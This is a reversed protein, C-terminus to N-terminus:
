EMDWKGQAAYEAFFQALCAMAEKHAIYVFSPICREDNDYVAAITHYNKQFVPFLEELNVYLMVDNEIHFVEKKHYQQMFDHLYLFRECAYFWFLNSSLTSKKVFDRHQQTKRLSEVPILKALKKLAHVDAQKLAKNHAIIYIDCTNFLRAQWVADELYSPLHPGLHVFVISHAQLAISFCLAYVLLWGAILFKQM